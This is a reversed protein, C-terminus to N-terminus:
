KCSLLAFFANVTYFKVAEWSVYGIKVFLPFNLTNVIPDRTASLIIYAIYVTFNLTTLNLRERLQVPSVFYLLIDM